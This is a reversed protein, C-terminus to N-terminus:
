EFTLKPPVKLHACQMAWRKSVTHALGKRRRASLGKFQHAAKAALRNALETQELHRGEGCLSAAWGDMAAEAQESPSQRVVGGWANLRKALQGNTKLRPVKDVTFHSECDAQLGGGAKIRRRNLAKALAGGVTFWADSVGLDEGKRQAGELRVLDGASVKGNRDRDWVTAQVSYRAGKASFDHTLGSWKIQGVDPPCALQTLGILLATLGTM